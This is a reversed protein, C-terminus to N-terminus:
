TRILTSLLTHTSRHTYTQTSPHTYLHTHTHLHIHHDHLWQKRDLILDVLHEGVYVSSVSDHGGNVKICPLM